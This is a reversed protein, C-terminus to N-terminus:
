PKTVVIEDGERAIKIIESESGIERPSSLTMSQGTALVTEVRVPRELGKTLTIVVHFGDPEVTYYGSGSVVGIQVSRGQLPKPKIPEAHAFGTQALVAVITGVRIIKRATDNISEKDM